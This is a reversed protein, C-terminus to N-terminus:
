CCSCGRISTSDLPELPGDTDHLVWVPRKILDSLLRAFVLAAQPHEVDSRKTRGHFVVWRERTCTGSPDPEKVHQVVIDRELDPQANSM